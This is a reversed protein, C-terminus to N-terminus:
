QVFIKSKCELDEWSVTIDTFTHSNRVWVLRRQLTSRIAIITSVIERLDEEKCDYFAQLQRRLVIM